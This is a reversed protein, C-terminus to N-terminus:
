EYHLYIYNNFIFHPYLWTLHTLFSSFTAMGVCMGIVAYIMYSVLVAMSGSKHGVIGGDSTTCALIPSATVESFHKLM